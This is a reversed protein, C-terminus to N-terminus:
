FELSHYSSYLFYLLISLFLDSLSHCEDVFVGGLLYSQASVWNVLLLWEHFFILSGADQVSPPSCPCLGRLLSSSSQKLFM